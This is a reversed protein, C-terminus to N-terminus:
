VNAMAIIRFPTDLPQTLNTLTKEVSQIIGGDLDKLDKYFWMEKDALFVKDYMFHITVKYVNKLRVDTGLRRLEVRWLLQLSSKERPIHTIM